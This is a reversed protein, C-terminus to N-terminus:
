AQVAGVECDHEIVLDGSPRFIYLRGQTDGVAIYRALGESGSQPLVMLASVEGDVKVASLLKLHDGWMERRKAVAWYPVDGCGSM